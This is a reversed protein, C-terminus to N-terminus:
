SRLEYVRAGTAALVFVGIIADGARMEGPPAEALTAAYCLGAALYVEV